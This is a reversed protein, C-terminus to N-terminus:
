LLINDVKLRVGNEETENLGNEEEVKRKSAYTKAVAVSSSLTNNSSPSKRAQVNSNCGSVSREPISIERRNM